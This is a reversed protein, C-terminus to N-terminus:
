GYSKFTDVEHLFNIQSVASFFNKCYNVFLNQGCIDEVSSIRLYVYSFWDPCPFNVVM